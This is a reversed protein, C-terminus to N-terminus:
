PTLQEILVYGNGGTGGGATAGVCGGGGGGLGAASGLNSINIMGGAGGAGVSSSGGNGGSVITAVAISNGGCQGTISAINPSGLSVGGGAGGFASQNDTTSGTTGVGGTVTVSVPAGILTSGGTAGNGGSNLGGTGGAGITITIGTNAAVGTFTGVAEGGAGAAGSVARTSNTGGSGGGAGVIKYKYITATSSSSPTTFTGSTTFKTKLGQSALGAATIGTVNTMVGSAPTGLAPTVLAPSTAYVLMGNGTAGTSTVGEFTTHGSVTLNGSVTGGTLPLFSGPPQLTAVSIALVWDGAALDTAWVGSTNASQAVYINNTYAGNVGDQVIDGFNYVTGAVWVGRYAGTRAAVQQIEMCLTDLATETVIPYQNGQNGIEANQTFPLTRVITLSGSTYNSPVSPSITGGIGWIQGTVPANLAVTYSSPPVTTVTGNTATYLINIDSAAVGIMPFSYSVAGTCAM